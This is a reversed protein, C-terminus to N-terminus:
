IIDRSAEFEDLLEFFRDFAASDSECLQVLHQCPGLAGYGVGKELELWRAFEKDIGTVGLRSTEPTQHIRCATAYGVLASELAALSKEGLYMAPRLRVHALWDRQCRIEPPTNM